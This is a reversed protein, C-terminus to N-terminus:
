EHSKPAPPTPTRNAGNGGWKTEIGRQIQGVTAGSHYMQMADRAIDLCM